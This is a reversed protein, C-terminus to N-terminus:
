GLSGGNHMTNARTSIAAAVNYTTYYIPQGDETVGILSIYKGDKEETIIWSKEKAMELAKAKNEKFEKDKLKAFEQLYTVNTKSIIKQRESETQSFVFTLSFVFILLLIIKKM